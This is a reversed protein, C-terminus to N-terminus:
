GCGADRGLIGQQSTGLQLGDILMRRWPFPSADRARLGRVSWPISALAAACKKFTPGSCRIGGFIKKISKPLSKWTASLSKYNGNFSRELTYMLLVHAGM